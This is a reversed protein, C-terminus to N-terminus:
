FWASNPNPDYIPNKMVDRSVDFDHLTPNAIYNKENWFNYAFTKDNSKRWLISVAPDRM